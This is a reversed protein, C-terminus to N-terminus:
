HGGGIEEGHFGTEKKKTQVNTWRMNKKKDDLSLKGNKKRIGRLSQGQVTGKLMHPKHIKEKM